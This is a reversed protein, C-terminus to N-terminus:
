GLGGGLEVYRHHRIREAISGPDILIGNSIVPPRLELSQLLTDCLDDGAPEGVIMLVPLWEKLNSDFFELGEASGEQGDQTHPM